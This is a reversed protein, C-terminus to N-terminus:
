DVEGRLARSAAEIASEPNDIAYADRMHAEIPAWAGTTMLDFSELFAVLATAEADTLTIM